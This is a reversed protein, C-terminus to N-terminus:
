TEDRPVILLCSKHVIVSVPTDITFGAKELWSGKLQILPTAPNGQYPKNKLTYSRYTKCVKLQRIKM